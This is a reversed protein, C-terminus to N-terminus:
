LEVQCALGDNTLPDRKQYDFLVPYFGQEKKGELVDWTFIELHTMKEMQRSTFQEYETLYRPNEKEGEYFAQIKEKYPDRKAAWSPRTKMNERAYLDFIMLEKYFELSDTGREELFELLIEYRRIRSHSLTDYGKEEYFAGLAEYFTFADPFERVVAEVTHSFQGSNYYIEM